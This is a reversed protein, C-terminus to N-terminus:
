SNSRENTDGKYAPCPHELDGWSGLEDKAGCKICYEDYSSADLSVETEHTPHPGSMHTEGILTSNGM